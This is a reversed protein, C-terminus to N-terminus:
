AVLVILVGVCSLFSVIVLAAIFRSWSFSDPASTTPTGATPAHPHAPGAIRDRMFFGSGPIGLNRFIGRRGINISLGPVGITTSVGSKSVNFRILKIVRVQKRFRLGM